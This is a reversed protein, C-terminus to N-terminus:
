APVSALRFTDVALHLRRSTLTTVGPDPVVPLTDTHRIPWCRRGAIVPVVDVLVSRAARAAEIAERATAGVSKVQVRLDIRSSGGALTDRDLVGPDTTVLWYPTAPSDATVEGVYVTHAPTAAALLTLVAQVHAWVDVAAM